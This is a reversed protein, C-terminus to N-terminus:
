YRERDMIPIRQEKAFEEMERILPNDEKRLGSLYTEFDSMCPVEMRKLDTM